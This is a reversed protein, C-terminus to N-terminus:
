RCDELEASSIRSLMVANFSEAYVETSSPSETLAKYYAGSEREFIVDGYNHYIHLRVADELCERYKKIDFGPIQNPGWGYAAALLYQNGSDAAKEAEIRGLARADDEAREIAAHSSQLQVVAFFGLIFLVAAGCILINKLVTDM